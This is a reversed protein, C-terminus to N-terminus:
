QVKFDITVTGCQSVIESKTFRYKMATKRALDILYADSTTSGKQTFEAASVKGEKNVCISLSVKGTKQTNDSFSPEFEVGRGSLGGGVRGSGKSIGELAKGDPNGKESGQNNTSNNNGKGKGLLDSYKKKQNAMEAKEAAEKQAKTKEAAEKSKKDSDAKNRTDIESQSEKKIIEAKKDVPKKNKSNDASIVPAEDDKDKSVINEAKSVDTPKNSDNSSNLDKTSVQEQNIDGSDPDGFSILIGESQTIEPISMIHIMFSLFIFLHVVLSIIFGKRKNEKEKYQLQASNM